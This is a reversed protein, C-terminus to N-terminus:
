FLNNFNYQCKKEIRVQQYHDKLLINKDKRWIFNAGLPAWVECRLVASQRNQVLVYRATCIQGWLVETENYKNKPTIPTSTTWELNSRDDSSTGMAKNFTTDTTSVEPTSYSTEDTAEHTFYQNSPNTPSIIISSVMNNNNDIENDSIVGNNKYNHDKDKDNPDVSNIVNNNGIIKKINKNSHNVRRKSIKEHEKDLDNASNFRQVSRRMTRRIPAEDETM